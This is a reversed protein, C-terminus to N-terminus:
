GIGHGLNGLGINDVAAQAQALQPQHQGQLFEARQTAGGVVDAHGLRRGGFHQVFGLIQETDFQELAQWAAHPRCREALRDDV